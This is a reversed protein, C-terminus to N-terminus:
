ADVQQKTIDMLATDAGQQVVNRGKDVAQSPPAELSPIKSQLFEEAEQPSKFILRKGKHTLKLQAPNLLFPQLGLSFMKKRIQSFGMRKKATDLSHDTNSPSSMGQVECSIKDIWM